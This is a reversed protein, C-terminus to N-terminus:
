RHVKLDFPGEVVAVALAEVAAVVAAAALEQVACGEAREEV